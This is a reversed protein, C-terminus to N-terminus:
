SSTNIDAIVGFAGENRMELTYEVRMDKRTSDGTKALDSTFVPRLYAIAAYEPDIVFASRERQFRNPIVKLDGFDSAYMDAAGQIVNKNNLVTRANSRGTFGSLVQKNHPGVMILSPDGGSAYVSALVNKLLLETFARKHTADTATNTTGNATASKGKTGGSTATTERSTNTRLWAELSRLKRATATAGSVGAQNGTIITEMDRKLEKGRKAMQYAMESDRGAKDVVEQTGTVVVDKSSIQCYNKLRVSPTSSSGAVVDGEFQANTSSAAALSDAQWEHLVAKAKTKGIASMFPTDTPSINYIVNTLDERNGIAGYTAFANTQITM